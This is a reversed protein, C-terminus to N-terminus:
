LCQFYYMNENNYKHTLYTRDHPGSMESRLTMGPLPNHKILLAESRHPKKCQLPKYAQHIRTLM